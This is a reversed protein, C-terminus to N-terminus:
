TEFVALESYISMKTAFFKKIIISSYKALNHDCKIATYYM